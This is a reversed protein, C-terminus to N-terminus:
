LPSETLVPPPPLPLAVAFIAGPRGPNEVWIRGGHAEVLGRCIALGLGTGECRQGIRYFKSFIREAEYAPIGPGQDRVHMVLRAGEVDATVQIGTGAPSYAAANTVLNTVVEQMQVYDVFAPPLGDPVKVTIAHNPSLNAVRGVADRILEGIEYWQRDPKLAGAEIRSLDLLNTILRTLRDVEANAASLIERQGHVDWTMDEELLATIGAKITALPTRLDHSVSHLLASKLEDSRRLIEARTAAEQLRWREIAVAAATAVTEILRAEAAPLPYGGPHPGLRLVGVCQTGAQIPVFLVTGLSM